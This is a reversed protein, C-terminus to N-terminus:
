RIELTSGFRCYSITVDAPAAFLVRGYTPQTLITLGGPFDRGVITLGPGDIPAGVVRPAHVGNPNFWNNTITIM